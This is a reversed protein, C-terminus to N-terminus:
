DFPKTLIGVDLAKAREESGDDPHALLMIPLDPRGARLWDRGGQMLPWSEDDVLALAIDADVTPLLERTQAEDHFTLVRFGAAVLGEFLAWRLLGDSSVVLIAPSPFVERRTTFLERAVAHGQRNAPSSTAGAKRTSRTKSLM